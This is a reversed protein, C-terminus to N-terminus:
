DLDRSWSDALPQGQKTSHFDVFIVIVNLSKETGLLAIRLPTILGDARLTAISIICRESLSSSKKRVDWRKFKDELKQKAIHLSRYNFM